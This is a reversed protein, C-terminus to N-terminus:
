AGDEGAAPQLLPAIHERWTQETLAGIQKYAIRGDVIVYTEPAGYVGWDLGAQGQPDTIVTRYPNGRRQLWLQVAEDTDKYDVGVIEIGQAALQMLFPHEDVCAACWSAFFNVLLPRGQLEAQTYRTEAAGLVALSFAPVPKGILPSPVERPDHRLGIALVVLLGVLLLVPLVYRLRM